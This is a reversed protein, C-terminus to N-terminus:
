YNRITRQQLSELGTDIGTIEVKKDRKLTM